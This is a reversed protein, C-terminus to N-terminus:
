IQGTDYDTSIYPDRCINFHQDQDVNAITRETQLNCCILMCFFVHICYDYEYHNTEAAPTLIVKLLIEESCFESRGRYELQVPWQKGDYESINYPGGLMWNTQLPFYLALLMIRGAFRQGAGHKIEM